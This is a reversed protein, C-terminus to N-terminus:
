CYKLFMGPYRAQIWLPGISDGEKKRDAILKFEVSQLMMSHSQADPKKMRRLLGLIVWGMMMM